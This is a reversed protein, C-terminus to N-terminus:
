FSDIPFQKEPMAVHNLEGNPKARNSQRAKDRESEKMVIPQHSADVRDHAM